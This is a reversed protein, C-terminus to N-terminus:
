LILWYFIFYMMALNFGAHSFVAGWLSDCLLKCRFFVQSVIFMSVVWLVAPLPLFLWRAATYVIGFHALHTLAFALGDFYSAKVEGFRGVFSGHVVGRYLFEEGIPSFIMSPTAAILFYIWKDSAPVDVPVGGIRGIYVFANDLSQGGFLLFFIAFIVACGLAGLMFSYLLRVYHRPRNLLISRRGQKTLFVLPVFWMCVFVIFALSYTGTKNAQLVLIFRPIGFLLILFLGFKWDYRFYRLWFTRLAEM